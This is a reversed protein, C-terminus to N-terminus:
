FNNEALAMAPLKQDKESIILDEHPLIWDIGLAVDDFKVGADAQPAYFNDCKYQFEAEESLVVFGHAFGRPIYLQKKNEASLRVAVHKGFNPSSERMDVAVDLVEGKTVRVLKAQAFEGTQFHLGRLVGYSSKSHNDQVFQVTEGVAQEFAQQNFSEYFYGREDGFVRPTIEYVGALATEKIEM